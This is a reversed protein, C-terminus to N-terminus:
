RCLMYSNVVNLEEVDRNMPDSREMISEPDSYQQVDGYVRQVLISM